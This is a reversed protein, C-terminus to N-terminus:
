QTVLERKGIGSDSLFQKFEEKIRKMKQRESAGYSTAGLVEAINANDFKESRIAMLLAKAKTEGNKAQNAFAELVSSLNMSDSVTEEISKGENPIAHSLTLGNEDTKDMSTTENENSRMEANRYDRENGVPTRVHDYIFKTFHGQGQNPDYKVRYIGYVVEWIMTDFIAEVDAWSTGLGKLRGHNLHINRTLWPKMLQLLDALLREKEVGKANIAKMALEDIKDNNFNM